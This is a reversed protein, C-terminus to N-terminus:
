ECHANEYTDIFAELDDHFSRMARMHKKAQTKNDCWFGWTMSRSCDALYMEGGYETVEFRYSSAVGDEASSPRLWKRVNWTFKKRIM